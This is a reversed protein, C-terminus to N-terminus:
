RQGTFSQQRAPLCGPIVVDSIQVPQNLTIIAIDNVLTTPNFRPHIDIRSATRLQASYRQSPNWVGM